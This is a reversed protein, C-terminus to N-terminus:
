YLNDGLVNEWNEFASCLIYCEGEFSEIYYYKEDRYLYLPYPYSHLDIIKLLKKNM